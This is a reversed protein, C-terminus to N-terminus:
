SHTYHKRSPEVPRWYLDYKKNTFDNYEKVYINWYKDFNKRVDGKFVKLEIEGTRSIKGINFPESKQGDCDDKPCVGYIVRNIKLELLESGCFKCIPGKLSLRETFDYSDPKTTPLWSREVVVTWIYQNAQITDIKWDNPISKRKSNPLKESPSPNNKLDTIKKENKLVTLILHIVIVVTFFIIWIPVPFTTQLKELFLGLVITLFYVIIFSTTQTSKEFM